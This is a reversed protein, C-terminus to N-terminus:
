YKESVKEDKEHAAAMERLCELAALADEIARHNGQQLPVWTYSGHYESWNGCFIAYAEMACEWGQPFLPLQYRRASLALRECDFTANYAVLTTRDRLVEQLQLWVQPLTPAAALEANSIKHILQAFRSVPYEPNVLSEFLISGDPNIVGIECVVGDLATTETDILAWDTRQLLRYAWACIDRRDQEIKAFLTEQEMQWKVMEQCAMCLGARYWDYRIASLSSPVRGCRECKYKEQIHPWVALRAARQKETEQYRAVAQDIPYLYVLDGYATVICGEALKQDKPHLGKKKLQTSTYLHSPATGVVYWPVGPCQRRSSKLQSWTRHCRVCVQQQRENEVFEHGRIIEM